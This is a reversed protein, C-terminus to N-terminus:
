LGFGLKISMGPVRALNLETALRLVSLRATVGLSAQAGAAQEDALSLHPTTERASALYGSVAVYPTVFAVDRSAVVELGYTTAEMDDPGFLSVVSIRGAVALQRAPESLMNYQLLAGIFGYNAGVAKTFYAGVDIRDAVGARVMFGPIFLADGEILWHTSDPHSFTDNWAPDADDIRTGWNVLAIEVNRRGLPAASALPRFYTVVGLESVFQRWADQTLDHHLEIACESWRSNTHLTQAFAPPALAVLGLALMVESVASRWTM